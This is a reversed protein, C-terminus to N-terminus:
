FVSEEVGGGEAAGSLIVFQQSKRLIRDHKTWTIVVLTM